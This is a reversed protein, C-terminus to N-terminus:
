LAESSPLPHGKGTDLPNGYEDYFDGTNGISYPLNVVAFDEASMVAYDQIDEVPTDDSPCSDSTSLVPKTESYSVPSPASSSDSYETDSPAVLTDSATASDDVVTTTVPAPEPDAVYDASSDSAFSNDDVLDAARLPASSNLGLLLIIAISRSAGFVVSRM